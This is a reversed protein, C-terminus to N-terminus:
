LIDWVHRTRRRRRRDDTDMRLVEVTVVALRSQSDDNTMWYSFSEQVTRQDSLEGTRMETWCRLPAQGFDNFLCYYGSQESRWFVLFALDCLPTRKDTICLVPKVSLQMESKLFTDPEADSVAPYVALLVPILWRM